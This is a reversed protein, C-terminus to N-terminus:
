MYLGTYYVINAQEQLKYCVCLKYDLYYIM